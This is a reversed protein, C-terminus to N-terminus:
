WGGAKHLNVAPAPAEPATAEPAVPTIPVVPAPAPASYNTAAAATYNAQPIPKPAPEAVKDLESEPPKVSIPEPQPAPQPIPESEPVPVEEIVPVCQELFNVLLGVGVVVIGIGIAGKILQGILDSEEPVEESDPELEPEHEELETESEPGCEETELASTPECEVEEPEPKPTQKEECEPKETSKEESKEVSQQVSQQESKEVQKEVAAPATKDKEVNVSTSSDAATGSGVSSSGGSSASATSTAGGSGSSDGSAASCMSKPETECVQKGHDTLASFCQSIADDRDACLGELMEGAQDVLDAGTQVCDQFEQPFKSRDISGLIQTLASVIDLLQQVIHMMGQDSETVTSDIADAAKSAAESVEEVENRNKFWDFAREALESAIMGGGVTGFFKLLPGIWGQIRAENTGGVAAVAAERLSNTDLGEITQYMERLQGEPKAPGRYMGGSAGQLASVVAGYGALPDNM